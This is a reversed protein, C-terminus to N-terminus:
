PYTYNYFWNYTYNGTFRSQLRISIRDYTAFAPPIPFTAPFSGGPGSSITGSLVGNAGLTGYPGMLVDYTDNPPFNMTLISVSQGGVVNTIAFSQYNTIPGPGPWPQQTAYPNNYFWNYAYYGSFPSQLRIAIRYMGILPPPITFTASFSGGGNSNITAIKLGNVAQNGYPGMMVDFTDNPPFNYTFITVAQDTMVSVISFTPIMGVPNPYPFFPSGPNNSFWNYSYYGTIPSQLRIAIQAMGQLPAPIPFTFTLVGGAGANITAVKIGNIGQTGYPGMIVDYVDNPQFNTTTITVSQNPVVSTITFSPIYFAQPAAIAPQIVPVVMLLAISLIFIPKM